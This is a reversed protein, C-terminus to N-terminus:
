YKQFSIRKIFVVSYEFHQSQRKSRCKLINFIMIRIQQEFDVTDRCLPSLDQCEYMAVGTKTTCLVLANQSICCNTCYHYIELFSFFDEKVMLSSCTPLLVLSELLVMYVVLHQNFIFKNTYIEFVYCFSCNQSKLFLQDIKVIKKFRYICM